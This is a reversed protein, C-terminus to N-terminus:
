SHRFHKENKLLISIFGNDSEISIINGNDKFYERYEKVKKELFEDKYYEAIGDALEINLYLDDEGDYPLAKYFGWTVGDEVVTYWVGCRQYWVDFTEYNYCKAYDEIEAEATSLLESKTCSVLCVFLLSLYLFFKM